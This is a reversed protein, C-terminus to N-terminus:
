NYNNLKLEPVLEQLNKPFVLYNLVIGDGTESKWETLNRMLKTQSQSTATFYRLLEVQVKTFFDRIAVKESPLVLQLLQDPQEDKLLPLHLLKFIFYAASYYGQTGEVSKLDRFFEVDIFDRSNNLQHLADQAKELSTQLVKNYLEEINHTTSNSTPINVDAAQYIIHSTVVVHLSRFKLSLKGSQYPRLGM